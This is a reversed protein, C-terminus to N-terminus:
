CLKSSLYVCNLAVPLDSSKPFSILFSLILNLNFILQELLFLSVSATIVNKLSYHINILNTNNTEIGDLLYIYINKIFLFLYIKLCKM